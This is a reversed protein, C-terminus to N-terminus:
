RGRYGTSGTAARLWRNFQTGATLTEVPPAGTGAGAHANAVIPTAPQEPEPPPQSIRGARSRLWTNFSDNVSM